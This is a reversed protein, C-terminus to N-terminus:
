GHASFDLPAAFTTQVKPLTGPAWRPPSPFSDQSGTKDLLKSLLSHPIPSLYPHHHFKVSWLFDQTLRGSVPRPIPSLSTVTVDATQLWGMLPM